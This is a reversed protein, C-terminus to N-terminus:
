SHFSPLGLATRDLSLRPLDEALTDKERSEPREVGRELPSLGLRHSLRALPDTVLYVTSPVLAKASVESAKM